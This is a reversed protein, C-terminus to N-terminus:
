PTAITAKTLSMSDVSSREPKQKISITGLSTAVWCEISSSFVEVRVSGHLSTCFEVAKSIVTQNTIFLFDSEHWLWSINKFLKKNKDATHM